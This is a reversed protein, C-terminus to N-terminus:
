TNPLFVHNSFAKRSLFYVMNMYMITAKDYEQEEIAEVVSCIKTYISSYLTDRDQQENLYRVIQPADQYYTQIIEEGYPQKRLYNDRFSRLVTLERCNDPLGRHECCASTLFCGSSGSSKRGYHSCAKEDPYYDQNYYSCNGRGYRSDPETFYECTACSVSSGATFHGCSREDSYYECNYYSCTGKEYKSNPEIFNSCDGCRAM